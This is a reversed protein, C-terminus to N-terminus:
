ESMLAVTFYYPLQIHVRLAYLINRHTHQLACLTTHTSSSHFTLIWWVRWDKSVHGLPPSPLASVDKRILGSEGEEEEAASLSVWIRGGVTRERLMADTWGRSDGYSKGWTLILVDAQDSQGRVDTDGQTLLSSLSFSLSFFLIVRQLRALHELKAVAFSHLTCKRLTAVYQKLGQDDWATLGPREELYAGAFILFFTCYYYASHLLIQINRWM